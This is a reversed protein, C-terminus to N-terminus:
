CWWARATHGQTAVAVRLRQRADGLSREIQANVRSSTNRLWSSAARLLRILRVRAVRSWTSARRATKEAM